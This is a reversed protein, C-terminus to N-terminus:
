ATSHNRSLPIRMQVELGTPKRNRCTVSGQCAEICSKVIALGLGVGGTARERASELRYFPELIAELDKEPVGPGQDCVSLTVFDGDNRASVVIPGAAGAYRVANRVVNSVARFLSERNARVVLKPDVCATISAAAGEREVVRAVLEALPVDALEPAGANRTAKSFSLVDDVLAGMNEVDERLDGLVSRQEPAASRDLLGLAVQMRALPSRLEHAADRLFRKQGNVLRDLRSAMRQISASLEGLEDHRTGPLETGFRGEAIQATAGTMRSIARNLGRVFPLWCAFSVVIVLGGVAIWPKTDVYFLDDQGSSALIIWTQSEFQGSRSHGIPAPVAVWQRSPNSTTGLFTLEYDDHSHRRPRREILPEHRALFREMVDSPLPARAGGLTVGRANTLRLEVRNAAAYREILQDWGAPDSEALQLALLRGAALIRDHAPSILFSEFDLRFELKILIFFAAGLLLLNVFAVFLVKTLLTSRLKM